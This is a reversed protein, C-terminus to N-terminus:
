VNYDFCIRLFEEGLKTPRATNYHIKISDAGYQDKHKKYIACDEYIYYYLPDSLKFETNNVEFLGLRRLNELSLTDQRMEIETTSIKEEGSYKSFLLPELYSFSGRPKVQPDSDKTIFITGWVKLRKTIFYQLVQIDNRNLQGIISVFADQHSQATDRNMASAILKAFLLRKEKEDVYKLSETITPYTSLKPTIKKDQPVKNVADVIEQAYNQALDPAYNALADNMIQKIQRSLETESDLNFIMVANNTTKNGAINDGNKNKINNGTRKWHFNFRLLNSLKCDKFIMM